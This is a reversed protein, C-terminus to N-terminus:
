NKRETKIPLLRRRARELGPEEASTTFQLVNKKEACGRQCIKKFFKEGRRVPSLGRARELINGIHFHQWHWHQWNWNFNCGHPCDGRRGEYKYQHCHHCKHVNAMQSCDDWRPCDGNAGKLINGIHFHQWNWHQWNWNFNGGGQPSDGTAAGHPCDGRGSLFTALTSINGIGTNGTGISIAGKPVTGGGGWPSLGGAWELINGIHFHQWHWHQWNWNFNCGQPCDGNAGKLINGIHFHQWHWHQWNWNFNGGHPCDGRRGSMSTNTAIIVNTFMQWKHVIMGGPSLGRAWELINGIHFHQWHWHQWNWNFNGGGRPVTGRRRGM